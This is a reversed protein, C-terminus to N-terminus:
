VNLYNVDFQICTGCTLTDNPILIYFILNKFLQADTQLQCFIMILM